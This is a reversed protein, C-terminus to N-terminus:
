LTWSRNRYLVHTNNHSHEKLEPLSSAKVAEKCPSDKELIWGLGEKNKLGNRCTRNSDDSLLDTGAGERTRVATLDGRLRRWASCVM